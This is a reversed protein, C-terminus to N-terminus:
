NCPMQSSPSGAGTGTLSELMARMPLSALLHFLFSKDEFRLPTVKYCLPQEHTRGGVHMCIITRNGLLAHRILGDKRFSCFCYAVHLGFCFMKVSRSRRQGQSHLIRCISQSACKNRPGWSSRRDDTITYPTFSFPELSLSSTHMNEFLNLFMQIKQPPPFMDHFLPTPRHVCPRSCPYWNRPLLNKPMPNPEPHCKLRKPGIAPRNARGPRERFPPRDVSPRAPPLPRLNQLNSPSASM